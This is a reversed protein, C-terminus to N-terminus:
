SSSRGTGHVSFWRYSPLDSAPAGAAPIQPINSAVEFRYEEGRVGAISRMWDTWQIQNEFFVAYSAEHM